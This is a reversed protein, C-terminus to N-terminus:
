PFLRPFKNLLPFYPVLDISLVASVPLRVRAVPKGMIAQVRPVVLRLTIMPVSSKCVGLKAWDHPSLDVLIKMVRVRRLRSSVMTDSINTPFVLGEARFYHLVVM